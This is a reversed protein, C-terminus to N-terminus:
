RSRCPSPLEDDSLTTRDVSAAVLPPVRAHGCRWAAPLGADSGEWARVSIIKGALGGVGSSFMFDVAGGERILVSQLRGQIMLSRASYGAQENSTPWAGTVAHYEMSAVKAGALVSVADLVHLRQQVHVFNRTAVLAMAGMIALYIPLELMTTATPWEVQLWRVRADMGIGGQPRVMMADVGREPGTGGCVNRPLKPIRSM